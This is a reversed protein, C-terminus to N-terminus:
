SARLLHTMEEWADETSPGVILMPSIPRAIAAFARAEDIPHLAALWEARDSRLDAARFRSPALLSPLQAAEDPLLWYTETLTCNAERALRVWLEMERLATVSFAGLILDTPAIEFPLRVDQRVDPVFSERWLL